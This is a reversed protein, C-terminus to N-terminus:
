CDPEGIPFACLRRDLRYLLWILTLVLLAPLMTLVLLIWPNVIANGQLVTQAGLTVAWAEWQGGPVLLLLGCVIAVCTEIRPFHQTYLQQGIVFLPFTTLILYHIWVVPTVLTSICVLITFANDFKCVRYTLILGVITLLLPLFAAIGRALVPSAFIPLAEAGGRIPSGTGDFLRWGVSWLSFNHVYARYLPGVLSGVRFYYYLIAEYGMLLMAIGNAVIVTMVAASVARWNKRLALFLVIPWGILKLSIVIGLFVGGWVSRNARLAQWSLLLLVFLLVTLQGFLLEAQFPNWIFVVASGILITKLHVSMGSWRLLLYLAAFTCGIEFVFWVIAAQQYELLGLPLALIAVPPPHPTPHSFATELPLPGIFQRALDPIPLYPMVGSLVARALLYEQVFDRMYVYPRSLTQANRAISILGAICVLAALLRRLWILAPVDAKFTRYLLGAFSSSSDTASAIKQRDM